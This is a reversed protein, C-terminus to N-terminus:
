YKKEDNRDEKDKSKNFFKIFKEGIKDNIDNKSLYKNLYNDFSDNKYSFDAEDVIDIVNSSNNTTLLIYVKKNIKTIVIKGGGPINMLDLLEIYKSSTIGKFNKAVLKTGYLSLFVVLAFIIIYFILQFIIKVLSINEYGEAYVPINISTLIIFVILLKIKNKM